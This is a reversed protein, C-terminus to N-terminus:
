GNTERYFRLSKITGLRGGGGMVEDEYRQMAAVILLMLPDPKVLAVMFDLLRRDGGITECQRAGVALLPFCNM